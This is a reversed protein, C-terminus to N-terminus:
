TPQQPTKSTSCCCNGICTDGSAAAAYFTETYDAPDNRLTTESSIELIMLSEKLTTNIHTRNTTGCAYLLRSVIDACDTVRRHSLM